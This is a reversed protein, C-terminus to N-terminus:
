RDDFNLRCKSRNDGWRRSPTSVPPAGYARDNTGSQLESGCLPCHDLDHPLSHGGHAMTPNTM